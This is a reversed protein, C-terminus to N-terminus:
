FLKLQSNEPRGIAQPQQNNEPQGITQTKQTECKCIVKLWGIRKNAEYVECGPAVHGCVKCFTSM